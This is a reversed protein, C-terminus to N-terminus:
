SRPSARPRSSSCCTSCRTATPERQPQRDARRPDAARGGQVAGQRDRGAAAQRRRPRHGAHRAARQLGVKALLERPGRTPRTVLRHRRGRRSTASSSTRPSRSCRCWRWSRTSSSSASRARQRRHRPLAAGRRRLHDRGRLHRAPYVGSLVKMLTSKGAGNEGVLAHIEGPTVALNVDDLAKVGPFRRPSAACRSFATM